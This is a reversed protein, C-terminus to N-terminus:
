PFRRLYLALTPIYTHCWVRSSAYVFLRSSAWKLRHYSLCSNFLIYPLLYTIIDFTNQRKPFMTVIWSRSFALHTMSHITCINHLVTVHCSYVHLRVKKSQISRFFWSIMSPEQTKNFTIIKRPRPKNICLFLSTGAAM